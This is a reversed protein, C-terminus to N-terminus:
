ALLFGKKWGGKEVNKKKGDSKKADQKGDDTEMENDDKVEIEVDKKHSPKKDDDDGNSDVNQGDETDMEHDHDHASINEDDQNVSWVYFKVKEAVEKDPVEEEAVEETIEENTGGDGGDDGPEVDAVEDTVEDNGGDDNSEVNHNSGDQAANGGGIMMGTMMFTKLPNLGCYDIAPCYTSILMAGTERTNENLAAGIVEWEQNFLDKYWTPGYDAKATNGGHLGYLIIPRESVWYYRLSWDNMNMPAGNARQIICAPINHAHNALLRCLMGDESNEKIQKFTKYLIDLFATKLEEPLSTTTAFNDDLRIRTPINLLDTAINIRRQAFNAEDRCNTRIDILADRMQSIYDAPELPDIRTYVPIIFNINSLMM